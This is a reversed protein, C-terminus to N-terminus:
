WGIVYKSRSGLLYRILVALGLTIGLVTFTLTLWLVPGPVAAYLSRQPTLGAVIQEVVLPHLFYIAFSASALTDLLPLSREEFRQLFVVFFACLLLKQILVIDPLGLEFPPKHLNGITPYYQAQVLAVAGAAILLPLQRGALRAQIEQRHASVLAGLLYVPFFYVVSQLVSLNDVPRHILLSVALLLGLIWIQRSPPLRLIVMVLPSLVFVALIFPVYWYGNVVDGRWLHVALSELRVATFGEPGPGEAAVKGLVVPLSLLLYPVLVRGARGALFKGYDFRSAYIYHFLFGSIFVFMATGGKVMNFVWREALTDATWGLPDLCHGLVIVLIAIGRFCHFSRLRVARDPHRDNL